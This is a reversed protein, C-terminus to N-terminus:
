VYAVDRRKENRLARNNNKSNKFLTNKTAWAPRSSGTCSLITKFEQDERRRRVAPIAPM